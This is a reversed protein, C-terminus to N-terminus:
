LIWVGVWVRLLGRGQRRHSATRDIGVADAFVEAKDARYAPMVAIYAYADSFM